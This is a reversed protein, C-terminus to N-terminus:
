DTRRRTSTDTTSPPSTGRQPDAAQVPKSGAAAAPRPPPEAPPTPLYLPGRQGCASLLLSAALILGPLASVARKREGDM